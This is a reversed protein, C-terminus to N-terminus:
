VFIEFNSSARRQAMLESSYARFGLGQVTFGVRFGEVTFGLGLGVVLFFVTFGLGLDMGGLFTYVRFGQSSLSIM